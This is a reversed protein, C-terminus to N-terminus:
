KREAMSKRSESMEGRGNYHQLKRQNREMQQQLDCATSTQNDTWPVEYSKAAELRENGLLVDTANQLTQWQDHRHGGLNQFRPYSAPLPTATRGIVSSVPFTDAAFASATLLLTAILLKM